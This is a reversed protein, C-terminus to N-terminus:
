HQRLRESIRCILVVRILCKRSYCMEMRYERELPDRGTINTGGEGGWWVSQEVLPCRTGGPLPDVHFGRGWAAGPLLEGRSCHLGRSSSEGVATKSM